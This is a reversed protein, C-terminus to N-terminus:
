KIWLLHKSSESYKLPLNSKIWCELVDRHDNKVALDIAKETYKLSLNTKVWWELVEVFGYESAKDIAKETYKLPLGSNFWWQLVQINYNASANDLADSTYEFSKLSKKLSKKLSVLHNKNGIYSLFDLLNNLPTTHCNRWWELVKIVNDGNWCCSENNILCQEVTINHGKIKVVSDWWELVEIQGSQSALCLTEESIYIHEPIFDKWWNLVNIHGKISAKALARKSLRSNNFISSYGLNILQDLINVDGYYCARIIYDSNIPINFLKTTKMDFLYYKDGLIIKNSLCCGDDMNIIIADTPIIVSCMMNNYIVIDSKVNICYFGGREIDYDCYDDFESINLGPKLKICNDYISNEDLFIIYM